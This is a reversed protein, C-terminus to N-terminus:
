SDFPDYPDVLVDRLVRVEIKKGMQASVEPAKILEHSFKSGFSGIFM